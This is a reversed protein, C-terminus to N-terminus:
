YKQLSALISVTFSLEAMPTSFEEEVTENVLKTSTCVDRKKARMLGQSDVQCLETGGFLQPLRYMLVLNGSPAINCAKFFSNLAQEM